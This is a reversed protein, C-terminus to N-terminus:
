MVPKPVGRTEPRMQSISPRPQQARGDEDHPKAMPRFVFGRDTGMVRRFGSIEGGVTGVRVMVRYNVGRDVIDADYDHHPGHAGKDNWLGAVDVERALHCLYEAVGYERVVYKPFYARGGTDILKYKDDDSISDYDWYCHELTRQILTGRDLARERM